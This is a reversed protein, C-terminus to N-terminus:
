ITRVSADFIYKIEPARLIEEEATGNEAENDTAASFVM